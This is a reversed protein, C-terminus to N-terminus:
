QQMKASREISKRIDSINVKGRLILACALYRIFFTYIMSYLLVRYTPNCSFCFPRGYLAITLVTEFNHFSFYRAKMIMCKIVLQVKRSDLVMCFSTFQFQGFHWKASLEKKREENNLLALAEITLAVAKM